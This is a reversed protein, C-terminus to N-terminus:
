RRRVGDWFSCSPRAKGKEIEKISTPLPTHELQNPPHSGTGKRTNTTRQLTGTSIKFEDVVVLQQREVPDDSKVGLNM